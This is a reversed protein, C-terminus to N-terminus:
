ELGACATAVTEQEAALQLVYYAKLLESAAIRRHAPESLCATSSIRELFRLLPRSCTTLGLAELRKAAGVLFEPDRRSALGGEALLELETLVTGLLSGVATSSFAQAADEEESEITEVDEVSAAGVPRVAAPATGGAPRLNLNLVKGAVFLSVPQVCLSGSVLRLSGFVGTMESADHKELREVASELEPRFPLWLPIARGAEDIVLRTLQQRVSDYFPPEWATPALRM